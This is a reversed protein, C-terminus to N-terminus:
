GSGLAVLLLKKKNHASFYNDHFSGVLKALNNNIKFIFNLFGDYECQDGLMSALMSTVTIHQVSMSMMLLCALLLGQM